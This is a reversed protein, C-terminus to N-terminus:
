SEFDLNSFSTVVITEDLVIIIPIRPTTEKKENSFFAPRAWATNPLMVPVTTSGLPAATGRASTVM